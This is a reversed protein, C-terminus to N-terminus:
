QHFDALRLTGVEYAIRNDPKWAPKKRQHFINYDGRYAEDLKNLRINVEKKHRGIYEALLEPTMEKGAQIRYIM